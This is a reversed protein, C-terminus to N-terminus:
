APPPPPSPSPGPIESPSPPRPPPPLATVLVSPEGFVPPPPPPPKAPLLPPEPIIITRYMVVPERADFGLMVNFSALVSNHFIPFSPSSLLLSFIPVVSKVVVALNVNSVEPFKPIPVVLGNDFNSTAPPANNLPFTLDGETSVLLIELKVDLPNTLVEPPV